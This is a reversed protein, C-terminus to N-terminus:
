NVRRAWNQPEQANDGVRLTGEIVVYLVLTTEFYSPYVYLSLVISMTVTATSFTTTSMIDSTGVDVM